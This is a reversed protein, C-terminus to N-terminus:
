KSERFGKCKIWGVKPLFIKNKDDNLKVRQPYQFSQKSESDQEEPQTLMDKHVETSKSKTNEMLGILEYLKIEAVSNCKYIISMNM